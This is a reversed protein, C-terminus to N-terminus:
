DPKNVALLMDNFGVQGCTFMVKKIVIYPLERDAQISIKGTFAISSSIEGVKENLRRIKKLESYLEPIILQEGIMLNRAEVVPKGDLLVLNQTIAIVSAVEPPKQATSVPLKLDPSVSIIQGEASFNKLLFVLLITFMDIMSTLRLSVDARRRKASRKIVKFGDNNRLTQM